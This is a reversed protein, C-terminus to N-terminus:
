PKPPCPDSLAPNDKSTRTFIYECVGAQAGDAVHNYASTGVFQARDAQTFHASLVENFDGPIATSTRCEVFTAAGKRGPQKADPTFSGRYNFTLSPDDPDSLELFFGGGGPSIKITQEVFIETDLTGNIQTRCGITGTYTGTPDFDHASVLQPMTSGLVLLAAVVSTRLNM